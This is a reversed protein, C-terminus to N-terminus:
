ALLHPPQTPQNIIPQRIVKASKSTTNRKPEPKLWLKWPPGMVKYFFQDSEASLKKAEEIKAKVTDRENQSLDYGLHINKIEPDSADALRPANRMVSDRCEKTHFSVKIPRMKGEKHKQSEFKGLRSISKVGIDSSNLQGMIKTVLTEDKAKRENLPLGETENVKYIIINKEREEKLRDEKEQEQRQEIIIEKMVGTVGENQVVSLTKKDDSKHGLFAKKFFKQCSTEVSKVVNQFLSKKTTELELRLQGLSTNVNNVIKEFKQELSDVKNSVNQPNCVKISMVKVHCDACLWLVDDSPLQQVATYESDTMGICPGCFYRTCLSCEMAVDNDDDM